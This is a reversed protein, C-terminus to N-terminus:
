GGPLPLKTLRGTVTDAAYITSGSVAFGSLYGAAEATAAVSNTAPEVAAFSAVLPDGRRAGEDSYVAVVIKGRASAVGFGAAGIEVTATAKGTAPDIRLLDLGRGTLWLAGSAYVAEETAAAKRRARVRGVLM